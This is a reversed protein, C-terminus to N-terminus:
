TFGIVDLAAASWGAAAMQRCQRRREGPEGDTRAGPAGLPPRPPRERRGATAEGTMEGKM